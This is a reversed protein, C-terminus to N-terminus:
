SKGNENLRELEKKFASTIEKVTEETKELPFHQQGFIARVINEVLTNQEEVVKRIGEKYGKASKRDVEHIIMKYGTFAGFTVMNGEIEMPQIHLYYGRPKPKYTAWNYGGLDYDLKAVIFENGEIRVEVLNEM